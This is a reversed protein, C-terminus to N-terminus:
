HMGEVNPVRTGMDIVAQAMTGALELAEQPTLVVTIGPGEIRMVVVPGHDTHGTVLEIRGEHM